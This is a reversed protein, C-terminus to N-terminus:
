FVVADLVVAQFVNKGLALLVFVNIGRKVSGAMYNYIM